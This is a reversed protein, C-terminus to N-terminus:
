HLSESRSDTPPQRQYLIIISFHLSITVSVRVGLALIRVNKYMSHHSCFSHFVYNQALNIAYLYQLVACVSVPLLLWETFFHVADKWHSKPFRHELLSGYDVVKQQAPRQQQEDTALAAMVSGHGKVKPKAGTSGERAINDNLFAVLLKSSIEQELLQKNTDVQYCASILTPFLLRTHRCYINHLDVSLSSFSSRFLYVWYKPARKVCALDAMQELTSYGEIQRSTEQVVYTAM